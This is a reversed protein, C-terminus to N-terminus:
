DPDLTLNGALFKLQDDASVQKSVTLAGWFLLNGATTADFLGFHTVTGWNGTATPFAIDNANNVAGASATNWDATVTSVRAYGNGSVETGGGTDSPTATYLAVNLTAPASYAGKGTLHDLIKNELYASAGAM